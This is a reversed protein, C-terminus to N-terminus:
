IIACTKSKLNNNIMLREGDANKEALKEMHENLKLM